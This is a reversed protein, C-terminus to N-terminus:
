RQLVTPRTGLADSFSGQLTAQSQDLTLSGTGEIYMATMYRFTFTPGDVTGEGSATVFGFQDYETITAASGLQDIQYTAGGPGIWLGSLDVQPTQTASPQLSLNEQAAAVQTELAPQAAVLENQDVGQAISREAVSLQPGSDGGVGLSFGRGSLLAAAALVVIAVAVFWAVPVLNRKWDSGERADPV